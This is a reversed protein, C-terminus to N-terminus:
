DLTTDAIIYRNINNRTGPLTIPWKPNNTNQTQAQGLGITKQGDIYPPWSVLTHGRPDEHKAYGSDAM